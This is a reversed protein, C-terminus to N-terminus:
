NLFVEWNVIRYLALPIPPSPTLPTVLSPWSSTLPDLCRVGDQLQREEIRDMLRDVKLLADLIPSPLANKSSLCCNGQIRCPVNATCSQNFLLIGGAVCLLFAENREKTGVPDHMTHFVHM